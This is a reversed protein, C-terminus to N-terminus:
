SRGVAFTKFLDADEWNDDFSDRLDAWMSRTRPNDKDRELHALVLNKVEPWRLSHFCFTLFEWHVGTANLAREFMRIVFSREDPHKRVEEVFAVMEAEADGPSLSAETKEDADRFLKM